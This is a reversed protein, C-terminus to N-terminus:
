HVIKNDYLELEVFIPRHDSIWQESPGCDDLQPQVASPWSPQLVEFHRTVFVYDIVGVFQKAVGSIISQSKCTPENSGLERECDYVPSWEDCIVNYAGSDRTSNMDVAFIVPAEIKRVLSQLVQAVARSHYEMVVPRTFDCPMHYNAVWFSEGSKREFLCISHMVNQKQVARLYDPDPQAPAETGARIVWGIVNALSGALSWWGPTSRDVASSRPGVVESSIRTPDVQRTGYKVNSYATLCGMHFHNTGYPVYVATYHHEDLVPVLEGYTAPDVEQLCIVCGELCQGRVFDRLRGLRFAPELASEPSNVFCKKDALTSALCNLSVVRVVTRAYTPSQCAM